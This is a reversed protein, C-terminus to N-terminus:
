HYLAENQVIRGELLRRERTTALSPAVPLRVTHSLEPCDKQCLCRFRHLQVFQDEELVEYIIVPMTKHHMIVYCHMLYLLFPFNINPFVLPLGLLHQSCYLGFSVDLFEITMVSLYIYLTVVTLILDHNAKYFRRQVAYLVLRCMTFFDRAYPFFAVVCLALLALGLLPSPDVETSLLLKSSFRALYPLGLAIGVHRGPVAGKALCRPYRPFLYVEVRYTVIRSLCFVFFLFFAQRQNFCNEALQTSNSHLCSQRIPTEFCVNLVGTCLLLAGSLAVNATFKLLRHPISPTLM